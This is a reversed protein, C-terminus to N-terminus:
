STKLLVERFEWMRGHLALATARVYNQHRDLSECLAVSHLGDM